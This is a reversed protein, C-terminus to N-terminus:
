NEIINNVAVFSLDKYINSENNFKDLINLFNDKDTLYESDYWESMFNNYKNINNKILNIDREFDELNIIKGTIIQAELESVLDNFLELVLKDAKDARDHKNPKIEINNPIEM